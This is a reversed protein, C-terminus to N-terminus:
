PRAIQRLRGSLRWVLSILSLALMGILVVVLCFAAEAADYQGFAGCGQARFAKIALAVIAVADPVFIATLILSLVALPLAKHYLTARVADRVDARDGVPLPIPMGIATMIEAYWIGYVLGVLTLLLSAASLLDPIKSAETAAGADSM